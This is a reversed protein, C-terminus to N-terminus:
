ITGRARGTQLMKKTARKVKLDVTKRWGCMEMQLPAALSAPTPDAPGTNLAQQMVFMRNTAFGDIVRVRRFPKEVCSIVLEYPVFVLGM